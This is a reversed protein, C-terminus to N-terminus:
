RAMWFLIMRWYYTVIWNLLSLSRREISDTVLSETFPLPGGQLLQRDPLARMRQVHLRKGYINALDNIFRCWAALWPKAWGKKVAVLLQACEYVILMPSLLLLTRLSYSKAMLRWRNEILNQVRVLTYVGEARLSLGVTGQRHYARAAPVSLIEYGRLRVRIGIDLDDQYIFFDPDAPSEEGWRQRDFLFCAGVISDVFRVLKSIDAYASGANCLSMQGLYHVGAGDYQLTDPAHAYCIAPMAAVSQPYADLVSTLLGVAGKELIVDNDMFLIRKGIAARWGTDRSAGLGKNSTHEVILVQPYRERLFAISGDVSGDDVVVIEDVAASHALVSDLTAGLYDVGNYNCICVSLTHDDM